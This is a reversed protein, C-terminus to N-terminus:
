LGIEQLRQITTLANTHTIWRGGAALWRDKYKEWDDILVDGPRCYNAKDRSRCFIVKTGTLHWDVWAQKNYAAEPVSAPIGSLIVPRYYYIYSWLNRMDPMPELECYFGRRGCVRQWDVNDADKDPKAGFVAEYHSDFDALVGDMDVFITM